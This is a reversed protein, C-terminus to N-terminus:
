RKVTPPLDLAAKDIVKDHGTMGRPGVGDASRCSLQFSGAEPESNHSDAAQQKGIYVDRAGIRPVFKGQHALSQHIWVDM